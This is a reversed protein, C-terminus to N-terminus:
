GEAHPPASFAQLTYVYGSGDFTVTNFTPTFMSNSCWSLRAGIFEKRDQKQADYLKQYSLYDDPSMILMEKTRGDLEADWCSFNTGKQRQLEVWRNYRDGLTNKWSSNIQMVSGSEEDAPGYQRTLDDRVAGFDELDDPYCVQVRALGPEHGARQYFNFIVYQATHGYLPVDGIVFMKTYCSEPDEGSELFDEETIGLSEMVAEPSDNWHLGPYEMLPSPEAAGEPLVASGDWGAGANQLFLVYESAEWKVQNVTTSQALPGLPAADTWWLYAMPQLRIYEEAAERTPPQFHSGPAANRTRAEVLWDAAKQVFAESLVSSDSTWFWRHPGPEELVAARRELLEEGYVAKLFDQSINLSTNLSSSDSSPVPGSGSLTYLEPKTEGGEGYQRVLRERVSAFDAGDPYDLRVGCLGPEDQAEVYQMFYFYACQATEGLYTFDKVVLTRERRYADDGNLDDVSVIQEETIGLTGIVTEMSDNWHLGPYELMPSPEEGAGGFVCAALLCALAAVLALTLKRARPQRAILAIREAMARKGATMTTATHFLVAPAAQRSVMGLLTQGYGIRENEGLRRLASADCALECDRRSLAAAWWVLPNYWHVALCVCRLISWLHDGHRYHAYEHALIHEPHEAEMAAENLYIAPRLLGSLCPSPLGDAEYVPLGGSWRGAPVELRKREKRLRICFVLNSVAMAGGTIVIGTKWILDLIDEARLVPKPNAEFAASAGGEPPVSPVSSGSASLDPEGVSPSSVPTQVSQVTAQFREAAGLVSVPAPFLTGPVLLRVAALLWLAYQVSPSIRGRLAQRLVALAIILMSSTLIIETM